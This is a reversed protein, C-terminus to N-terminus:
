ISYKADRIKSRITDKRKRSKKIAMKEVEEMLISIANISDWDWNKAFIPGADTNFKCRFTYKTKNGETHYAKAHITFNNVRSFTSIKKVTREMIHHIELKQFEDILPISELGSIQVYLKEKEKLAALFQIIDKPAIVGIPYSNGDIVVITSTDVNINEMIKDTLIDDAKAIVPKTSMLSKVSIEHDGILNSVFAGPKIYDSPLSTGSDRGYQEKTSLERILDLSELVGTLRNNKDTIPIRSVNHERFLAMAKGLSDDECLIIPNPTMFDKVKKGSLLSFRVIASLVDRESVVGVVTKGDGVPIIKYNLRYMKEVIDIINTDESVLPPKFTFNDIKTDDSPRRHLKVLQKYGFIGTYKNNECVILNHIRENNLTSIAKNLGQNIDILKPSRTMIDKAKIESIDSM